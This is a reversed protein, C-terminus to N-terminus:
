TKKPEPLAIALYDQHLRHVRQRLPELGTRNDIRDDAIALRAARSSQAALIARAREPSIGPRRATRELQQAEECDVVAIRDLLGRYEALSEVLLPVVVVAYPTISPQIAALQRAVEARILPHLIVELQRRADPDGFVRDRMAVRDLGGDTRRISDGFCAVITPMAAGDAATLAHAIADTDILSAGLEVFMAAVTSKGSGVGGTLGVRYPRHM